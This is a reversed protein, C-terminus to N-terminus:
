AAGAARQAVGRRLRPRLARAHLRLRGGRRPAGHRGIWDLFDEDNLARLGRQETMIGDALMGRVMATFVAVLHWTRRLDPDEEVLARLADNTATLARDLAEVSSAIGVRDLAGHLQASAELIAALVSVRLGSAVASPGRPPDSSGSLALVGSPVREDPLSDLFDTILQLARRLMDAMSFERAPARPSM